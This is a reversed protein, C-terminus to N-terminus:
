LHTTLPGRSRHVCGRPVASASYTKKITQQTCDRSLCPSLVPSLTHGLTCVHHTTPQQQVAASCSCLSRPQM